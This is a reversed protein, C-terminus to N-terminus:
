RRDLRVLKDMGQVALRKQSASRSYLEAHVISSHGLIDMLQRTTGDGEALLAGLTKRLGHICYGKPIKADECWQAMLGTLSAMNFPDGNSKALVTETTRSLPALAEALAPVIPIFLRKGGKRNRGKFQTFQFGDVMREDDAFRVRETTYDSWRLRAVDSRRNGLWLALAYATRAPTGIEWKAEYKARENEPWAKHGDTEPTRKIKLTPDTETWEEDLAVVILKRICILLLKEKHPRDAQADLSAKAHRRKYDKVPGSGVRIDTGPIPSNLFEEIMLAYLNQSTAELKRWESSAKLKRYAADFSEPVMAGPLVIIEASGAKRGAAASEYSKRFVETGPEGHLSITKRDKGRYRWRQRGRADIYSSAREFDPHIM